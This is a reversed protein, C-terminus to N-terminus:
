TNKEVAHGTRATIASVSALEWTKKLDSSAILSAQRTLAGPGGSHRPFKKAGHNIVANQVRLLYINNEETWGDTRERGREKKKRRRCLVGERKRENTSPLFYQKNLLSKFAEATQLFPEEM